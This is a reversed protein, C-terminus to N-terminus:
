LIVPNEQGPQPIELINIANNLNSKTSANQEFGASNM